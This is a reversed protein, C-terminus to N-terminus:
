AAQGYWAIAVTVTLQPERGLGSFIATRERHAPSTRHHEMRKRRDQDNDIPCYASDTMKPGKPM